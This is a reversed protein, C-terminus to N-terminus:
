LCVIIASWLASSHFEPQKIKIKSTELYLCHNFVFRQCILSHVLIWLHVISGTKLISYPAEEAGFWMLRCKMKMPAKGWVVQSSFMLGCDSLRWHEGGVMINSGKKDEWHKLEIRCM